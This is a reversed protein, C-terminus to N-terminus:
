GAPTQKLLGKETSIHPEHCSTCRKSAEPGHGPVTSLAEAQHCTYCLEPPNMKLLFRQDSKHPEHCWLCAGVAVPGHVVGRAAAYNTHCEYCLDPVPSNLQVQQVGDETKHVHCRNCDKVPPHTSGGTALGAPNGAPVTGSPAQAVGTPVVASGDLPPVGDFFFTLWRHRVGRDCGILLTTAGVAAIAVIGILLYHVKM